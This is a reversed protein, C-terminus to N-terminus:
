DYYSAFGNRYHFYRPEEELDLSPLQESTIGKQQVPIFECFINLDGNENVTYQVKEKRLLPVTQMELHEPLDGEISPYKSYSTITQELSITILATPSSRQILDKWTEEQIKCSNILLICLALISLIKIRSDNM